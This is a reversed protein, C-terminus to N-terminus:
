WLRPITRFVGSHSVTTRTTRHVSEYIITGEYPVHEYLLSHNSESTTNRKEEYYFVGVFEVVWPRPLSFDCIKFVRPKLGHM